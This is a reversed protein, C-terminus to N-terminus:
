SLFTNFCKFKALVLMWSVQTLFNSYVSFVRFTKLWEAGELTDLSSIRNHDLYVDSVHKYVGSKALPALDSINNHGLYLITTNSPLAEPMRQLGRHSCNVAIVTRLFHADKDWVIHHMSCSCIDAPCERVMRQLLPLVRALPKGPYPSGCTMNGLDVIKKQIAPEMM